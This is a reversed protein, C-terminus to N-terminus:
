IGFHQHLAAVTRQWADDADDRGIYHGPFIFDHGAGPYVVLEVPAGRDRASAAMTRITDIMCCGQEIDADGAFVLTPVEWHRIVDAKDAIVNTAPYYAVVVSVLDSMSTAYALAAGGGSSFGIVAVKGQIVHPARQARLIFQRLNDRAGTARASFDPGAFLVAYYGLKAIEAPYFAYAQPGFSGSLVIAVPGQGHPPLFETYGVSELPPAVRGCGMVGIGFLVLGACAQRMLSM